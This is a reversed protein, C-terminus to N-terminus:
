KAHILILYLKEIIVSAISTIAAYAIVALFTEHSVIAATLGVWFGMCGACDFPKLRGTYNYHMRLILKVVDLAPCIHLWWVIIFPLSYIM